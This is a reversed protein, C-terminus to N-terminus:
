VKNSVPGSQERSCMRALFLWSIRRGERDREQSLDPTVSPYQSVKTPEPSKFEHGQTLLAVVKGVSGDRFDRIKINSPFTPQYNLMLYVSHKVQNKLVLLM